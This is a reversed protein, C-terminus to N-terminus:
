HKHCFCAFVTVHRSTKIQALRQKLDEAFWGESSIFGHSANLLFDMDLSLNFGPRGPTSQPPQPIKHPYWPLARRNNLIRRSDQLLGLCGVRSRVAFCVLDFVWLRCLHFLHFCGPQNLINAYSNHLKEAHLVRQCCGKWCQYIM